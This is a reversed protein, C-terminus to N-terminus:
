SLFLQCPLLIIQSIVLAFIFCMGVFFGYFLFLGGWFGLPLTRFWSFFVSASFCILSCFCVDLVFHCLLLVLMRERCNTDASWMPEPYVCGCGALGFCIYAPVFLFLTGFFCSALVLLVCSSELVELVQLCSPISRCCRSLEVHNAM